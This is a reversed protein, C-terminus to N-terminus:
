AERLTRKVEEMRKELRATVARSNEGMLMVRARPRSGRGKRPPGARRIGHGIVVNAVDRVRVPIRGIDGLRDRSTRWGTVVGIGKVIEAEGAREIRGGGVNLNNRRLAELLDEM